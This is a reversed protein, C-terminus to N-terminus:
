FGPTNPPLEFVPRTAGYGILRVGPWLYVTRRIAYRGERIFVIGERGLASARDIAAQLAGSNDADKAPGDVYIAKPDEVRATIVSSGFAGHWAFLLVPTLLARKM